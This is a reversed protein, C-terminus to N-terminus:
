GAGLGSGGLGEGTLAHAYVGSATLVDEPFRMLAEFRVDWVAPSLPAVVRDLIARLFDLARGSTLDARELLSPQDALFRGMEGVFEACLAQMAQTIPFPDGREELARVQNRKLEWLHLTHRATIPAVEHILENILALRGPTVQQAYRERSGGSGLECAAYWRHDATAINRAQLHRCTWLRGIPQRRIDLNAIQRAEYAPCDGFHDPFPKFYPCVDGPHDHGDEM